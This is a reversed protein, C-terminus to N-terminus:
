VEDAIMNAIEGALDERSDDYLLLTSPDAHRSFKQVKRINGNSKDLARTIAAHRLGHPRTKLGVAQGIGRILYYLGSGTLRGGKAQRAFNVFLPGPGMGQIEIWAELAKKTPEPLSLFEKETRGKGTVALKEAELDIDELNLAVVEGRRLALDYLLRVIARDRIAKPTKKRELETLLQRYGDLGPGRTDRYAKSKMNEVELKWGCVSLTGALKVLSRLAALRRNVTAPSLGKEIMGAKYSMATANARGHGHRFLTEVAEGLSASGLFVRFDELDARYAEMTRVNRGSFFAKLLEPVPNWIEVAPGEIIPIIAHNQHGQSIEQSAAVQM